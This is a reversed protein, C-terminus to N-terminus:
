GGGWQAIVEGTEPQEIWVRQFEASLICEPPSDANSAVCEIVRRGPVSRLRGSLVLNFGQSGIAQGESLAHTAEYARNDRRGTRSDTSTFFQAIGIRPWRPVPDGPEEAKDDGPAAPRDLRPAAQEPEPDPGPREAVTEIAAAAPCVPQLLWPRPIWFGEVAEFEQEGPLKAVLPEAKSITPRAYVRVRRSEPDFSWRLWGNDAANSPGRCGFRIRMEFRRGALARLEGPLEAGAATASAAQAVASLLAARDLPPSPRPVSPLNAVANEVPNRDASDPQQRCGGGAAAAMVILPVLLRPPIPSSNHM